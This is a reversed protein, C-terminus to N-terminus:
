KMNLKEKLYLNLIASFNNELFVEPAFCCDSPTSVTFDGNFLLVKLTVAFCSM